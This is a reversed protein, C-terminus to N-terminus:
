ESRGFALLQGDALSVYVRGNALALGDLVPAAPLSREAVTEGTAGNRLELFGGQGPDFRAVAGAVVLHSKGCAIARIQRPVAVETSWPQGGAAFLQAPEEEPVHYGFVRSGDFALLQGQEGCATWTHISKRLALDYDFWSTELLGAKGGSLQLAEEGAPACQGTQSDFRQDALYIGDSHGVLLDCMGVMNSPAKASWLQEGSRPQLAVVTIGGDADPARGAAAYAIGEHVLVTGTVPWVSEVQGFAVLRQDVPAVLYRWLLRGDEAALCYVYGDHSGFLCLGQYVTPPSDVRGGADFQWRHAGTAIDVAVIRHKEIDSVYVSGDAVV